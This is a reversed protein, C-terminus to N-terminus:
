DTEFNALEILLTGKDLADSKTTEIREMKILGVGKAYWSIQEVNVLTLGIYNGADKFSSGSMTIKMCNKFRGAPVVVEEDLSEIRAELDVNAFIEFVTKQPPGTKKLLKTTTSQEWKTSKESPKPVVLQKDKHFEPKIQKDNISGLYYIGENSDLYYLITGDLSERLYVPTGDLDSKGLNNLIYKQKQLGDRTELLVNYRWKYGNSLPFYSQEKKSCGSCLLFFFLLVFSGNRFSIIIPSCRNIM